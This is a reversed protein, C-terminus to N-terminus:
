ESRLTIAPDIQAVRRAPLYSALTAVALMGLGCAVFTPADTPAAVGYLWNSLLRTALLAIGLGLALGGLALLLGERLIELAVRDASAGLAMRVGIERRRESVWWAIVAALGLSALLAGAAAFVGFLWMAFRPASVSRDLKTDMTELRDVILDPRVEAVITRIAAPLTVPPASQTRVVFYILTSGPQQRYPVYLESRRDLDTGWSRATRLMGVITRRSTTGDPARIDLRQGVPDEGPWFREAMAENVMAVPPSSPTDEATFLRGRRLPMGMEAFYGPTSWSTWVDASTPGITVRALETVGSLPLYSSATVEAVGPLMRIRDVIANVAQERAPDPEWGGNFLMEVITRNTSVFGPAAPRLILFTRIMLGASVLLVLSLAVEGIVLTRRVWTAGGAVSRSGHALDSTLGTRTAQAAPVVGVLLGTVIAAVVTVALTRGNVVIEAVHPMTLPMLAVIARLTVRALGLGAAAGALSVMLNEILTQRVIRNRTAGLALRVAIERRRGILRELQLNAVNACAILLVCGVAGLLVTLPTRLASLSADDARELVLTPNTAGSRATLAALRGAANVRAAATDLTLPARVRVVVELSNLPPNTQCGTPSQRGISPMLPAWAAVRNRVTPGLFGEPMVGIVTNSVGGLTISRGLITTSAGFDRQWELYSLVLV